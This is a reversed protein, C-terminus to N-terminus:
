QIARRVAKDEAATCPDTMSKGRFTMAGATPADLRAIIRACTSKGSGSEGVLALARGPRLTLSIGRLAKIEAFDRELAEITIIPEAMVEVGTLPPAANM